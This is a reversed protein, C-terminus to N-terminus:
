FWIFYITFLILLHVPYFAYAIWKPIKIGLPPLWFIFPLSMFAYIQHPNGTQLFYQLTSVMVAGLTKLTDGEFVYFSLILLIGYYSYSLDLWGVCILITLAIFLSLMDRKQFCLILLLGALLTFFINPAHFSFLLNQTFLNYPIQSILAFGLLRLSYRKINSTRKAGIAILYAFIPFSIRGIIRFIFFQPFLLYGIHDILMTLLAIFKLTDDKKASLVQSM